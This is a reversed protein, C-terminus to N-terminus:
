TYICVCINRFMVQGIWISNSTSIYTNMAPWKVSLCCNANQKRPLGGRGNGGAKKLQGYEKTHPQPPMDTPRIIMTSM